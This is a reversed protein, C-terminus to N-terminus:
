RILLVQGFANSKKIYPGNLTTYFLKWIYLGEQVLEGKYSGDWGVDNANTEFVLEGWRNYIQFLQVTINRGRPMFVGNVLDNGPSFANAMFLDCYENQYFLFMSDQVTGCPNSVTVMYKGPNFAYISSDTSGTSWLYTSKPFAANLWIGGGKCLITDSGINVLPATSFTITTTDSASCKDQTVTVQYQGTAGVTIQPSTENTNWLYTGTERADLTYSLASCVATDNGLDPDPTPAIRFGASSTDSCYQDRVVYNLTFSGVQDPILNNGSVPYGFYTGGSVEPLLIDATNSECYFTDLGSFRSNLNPLVHVDVTDRGKCGTNAFAVHMVKYHGTDSYVHSTSRQDSSDNDGFYWKYFTLTNDPNDFTFGNHKLCQFTDNLSISGVPSPLVTLPFFLTDKCATPKSFSTSTLELRVNFTGSSKYRKRMKPFTSSDNDGFWWRYTVGSPFPMLYGVSQIEFYNSELCQTDKFLTYDIYAIKKPFVKVNRSVSAPCGTLATVSSLVVNKFGGGAFTHTVPSTTSTGNGFDFKYSIGPITSTSTNTFEFSNTMQCSDIIRITFDLRVDYTVVTISPANSTLYQTSNGNNDHEYIVFYYTKGPLLNTVNVFNTGNANYVIFNGDGASPYEISGGFSPDGSYVTGDEPTYTPLSGEKAVIVRAAGDGSTWNLTVKNCNLNNFTLNSAHTGPRTAYVNHAM